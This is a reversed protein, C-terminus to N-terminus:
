DHYHDVLREWDLFELEDLSVPTDQILDLRAADVNPEIHMEDRAAFRGGLPTSIHAIWVNSGRFNIDTLWARLVRPQAPVWGSSKRLSLDQERGFARLPPATSIRFHRRLLAPGTAAPNGIIVINLPEAQVGNPRQRLM